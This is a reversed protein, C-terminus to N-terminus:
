ETSLGTADTASTRGAEEMGRSVVDMAARNNHTATGTSLCPCHRPNFSPKASIPSQFPPSRNEPSLCVSTVIDCPADWPHAERPASCPRADYHYRCHYASPLLPAPPMPPLQGSKLMTVCRSPISFCCCCYFIDIAIISIIITFIVVNIVIIISM